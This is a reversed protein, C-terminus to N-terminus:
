LSISSLSWCSWSGDMLRTVVDTGRVPAPEIFLRTGPFISDPRAQKLIM